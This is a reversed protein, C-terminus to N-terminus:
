IRFKNLLTNLQETEELSLKSDIIKILNIEKELKKLLGLGRESLLIDVARKDTSNANKSVYGKQILRDIIRSTDSMKDLIHSRLLNITCPSPYHRKLIGLVNYQQQTIHYPLLAEKIRQSAWQSTLIINVLTQHFVDETSPAPQEKFLQMIM